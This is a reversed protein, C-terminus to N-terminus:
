LDVHMRKDCTITGSGSSPFRHDISKQVLVGAGDSFRLDLVHGAGECEARGHDATTNSAHRLADDGVRFGRRCHRWGISASGCSQERSRGPLRFTSPHLALM